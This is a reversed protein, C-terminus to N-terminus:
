DVNSLITAVCDIIWPPMFAIDALVLPISSVMAVLIKEIVFEVALETLATNIPTLIRITLSIPLIALVISHMSDPWRPAEGGLHVCDGM